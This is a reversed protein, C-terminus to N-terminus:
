RVYAQVGLLRSKSITIIRRLKKLIHWAFPPADSAVSAGGLM